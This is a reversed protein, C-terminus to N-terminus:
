EQSVETNESYPGESEQGKRICRIAAEHRSEGHIKEEVEMLLENYLRRTSCKVNRCYERDSLKGNPHRELLEQATPVSRSGTPDPCHSNDGTDEDGDCEECYPWQDHCKNCDEMTM